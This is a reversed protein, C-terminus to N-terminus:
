QSFIDDFYMRLQSILLKKFIKSICSLSNIPRYNMKNLMNTEFILVVAALKLANPFTCTDICKNILSQIPKCLFDAGEKILKGPILDCGTTKRINISRLEKLVANMTVHSFTFTTYTNSGNQDIM